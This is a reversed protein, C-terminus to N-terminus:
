KNKEITLESLLYILPSNWYTDVENTSYSEYDDVYCLAPASKKCESKVVSDELKQNPGGVVMGNIVTETVMSPRHHPHEPSVTGYGTVYSMAMPNKGLVYNIHEAAINRYRDSSVISDALLLTMSQNMVTMNSGWYYNSMAVGYGDSEALDAIGEAEETIATCIKEVISPDTESEDIDLYAINGFHGMSQWGFGTYVKDSAAKEFAERYESKGTAKYLQAAAWYREDAFSTDEYAGTSIESPNETILTGGGSELYAWAKEAANLCKEAFEEDFNKYTDYSMAMLAAFDATATKSVPCVILEDTEYEPMVYGPFEACTVKHYVGGEETQMKFMWDLCYRVEDIVDPVGNGSEPINTKDSFMAPNNEYALLMEAATNAAAVVYRGYDGADHWGGSVDIKEDTGYIVALESHCEKHAFDGVYDSTIETGCRQTFMMRVADDLLNDYVDAAIKFEYSDGNSKTRIVYTGEDTVASFDGYRDTEDATKNYTSGTIEGTYVVSNDAMNVVEFETDSDDGRFVAIKQADPLYGIQNTIIKETEIVPEPPYEVNSDDILCLSVNDIIIDHAAYNTSYNGLNFTLKARKDTEATMTFTTDIHKTESNVTPNGGAYSAYTGGDQQLRYDITRSLSSSVDFQLRYVGNKYVPIGSYYPQVGYSLTGGDAISIVMQENQVSMEADAGGARYIDWNELGNSFDGNEILEESETKGSPYITFMNQILFASINDKLFNKQEDTEVWFHSNGALTEMEGREGLQSLFTEADSYPNIDDADGHLILCKTNKDGSCASSDYFLRNGSVSIVAKIGEKDFDTEDVLYNSFYMNDVIEAGSSYGALAIHDSSIDYKDANERVWDVASAVDEAANKMTENFAGTEEWEPNLRYDISLCVYGKMALDNALYVLPDWDSDKSGTYMGGGHVLIVAPRYEASDSEPQYLDLALDISNNQYDEKQAYVIDKEVSVSDFINDKYRSSEASEIHRMMVLDFVNVKNDCNMDFAFGADERNLIFDAQNQFDATKLFITGAASATTAVSLVLACMLAKVKKFKM